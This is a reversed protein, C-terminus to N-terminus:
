RPRSARGIARLLGIVIILVAFSGIVFAGIKIWDIPPPPPPPAPPQPPLDVTGIKEQGWLLRGTEVEFAQATIRVHVSGKDDSSISVIRGTVIGQVGQIRGFKQVTAPDMTDGYQQGWKIEDLLNKWDDDMRTYLEYGNSTGISAFQNRMQITFYDGDVDRQMPLIAFRKPLDNRSLMETLLAVIAKNGADRVMEPNLDAATPDQAHAAAVFALALLPLISRFRRSLLKSLTSMFDSPNLPFRPTSRTPHNTM